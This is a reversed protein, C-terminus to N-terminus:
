FSYKSNMQIKSSARIKTQELEQQHLRLQKKGDKENKLRIGFMSLCCSSLVTMVLLIMIGLLMYAADYSMYGGSCNSTILQFSCVFPVEGNNFDM